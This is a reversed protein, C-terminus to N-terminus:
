FQIDVIRIHLCGNCLYDNILRIFLVKYSGCEVADAEDELHKSYNLEINLEYDRGQPQRNLLALKMVAKLPWKLLGDFDGRM